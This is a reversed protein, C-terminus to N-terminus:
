VEEPQEIPEIPALEDMLTKYYGFVPYDEEPLQYLLQQEELWLDEITGRKEYHERQRDKTLRRAM